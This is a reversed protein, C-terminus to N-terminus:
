KGDSALEQRIALGEVLVDAKAANGTTQSSDVGEILRMQDETLPRSVEQGGEKCGVSNRSSM